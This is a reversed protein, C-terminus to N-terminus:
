TLIDRAYKRQNIVFRYSSQTVEISLFYKLPGLDKTHFQQSLHKKLLRIRTEDDSTIDIDDAYVLYICRNSSSHFSFAFPDAECKTM